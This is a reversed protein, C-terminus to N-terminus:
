KVNQPVELVKYIDEKEISAKLEINQETTQQLDASEKM